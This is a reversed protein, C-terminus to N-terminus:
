CLIKAAGCRKWCSNLCTALSRALDIQDIVGNKDVDCHELTSEVGGIRRLFPHYLKPITKEFLITLEERDLAGDGDLDYM